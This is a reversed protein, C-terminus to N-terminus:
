IKIPNKTFEITIDYYLHSFTALVKVNKKIFDQKM